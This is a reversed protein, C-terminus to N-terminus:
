QNELKREALYRKRTATLFRQVKESQYDRYSWPLKHWAGKAWFLTLETYIGDSLPIRFGAKKTTALMLRGHNIFGPDLNILRNGDKSLIREMENTKKKIEAQNQEIEERIDALQGDYNEYIKDREAQINKLMDDAVKDWKQERDHRATIAKVIENVVKYFGWIGVILAASQILAQFTISTEM